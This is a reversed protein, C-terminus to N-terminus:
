KDLVYQSWFAKKRTEAELAGVSHSQQNQHLGLQHCISVAIARHRALHSYDARLLYYLQALVHCQLTAVSATSSTSQLAKRWQPEYSTTGQKIRSKRPTLKFLRTLSHPPHASVVSSLAAIEFILFLQAVAQKNSHWHGAEPNALYEEYVKLFSPRHLM